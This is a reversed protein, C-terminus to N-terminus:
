LKLRFNKPGNKYGMIFGIHLIYFSNNQLNPNKRQKQSLFITSGCEKNKRSFLSIEAVGYVYVIQQVVDISDQTHNNKKLTYKKEIKADWLDPLKSCIGM